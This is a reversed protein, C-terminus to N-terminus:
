YRETALLEGDKGYVTVMGNASEYCSSFASAILRGEGAHGGMLGGSYDTYVDALDAISSHEDTGTVKTVHEVAAKESDLGTRNVCDQFRDAETKTAEALASPDDTIDKTVEDMVADWQAESMDGCASYGAEADLSESGDMLEDKVWARCEATVTAETPPASSAPPAAAAHDPSDDSKSLLAAGGGVLAAAM